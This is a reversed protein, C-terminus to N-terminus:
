LPLNLKVLNKTSKTVERLKFSRNSIGAEKVEHAACLDEKKQLKAHIPSYFCRQPHYAWLIDKDKYTELLGAKKTEVSQMCCMNSTVHDNKLLLAKM